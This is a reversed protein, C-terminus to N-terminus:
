QASPPQPQLRQLAAVLEDATFPDGHGPMIRQCGTALVKRWSSFTRELSMAMTPQNPTPRYLQKGMVLDGTFATGDDLVLSLCSDSHGPTHLVHGAIGWDALSAGDDLGIAPGAGRFRTFRFSHRALVEVWKSRRKVAPSYLKGGEAVHAVADPHCAVDCDVQARLDALGGFHDLHPHTVIVLRLEDPRRGIRRITRLVSPAHWLFGADILVLGSDQQLLYTASFLRKIRHIVM